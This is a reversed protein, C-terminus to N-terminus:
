WGMRDYYANVRDQNSRYLAGLADRRAQGNGFTGNITAPVLINDEGIRLGANLAENIMQANNGKSPAAASGAGTARVINAIAEAFMAAKVDDSLGSADARDSGESKSDSKAKAKPAPKKDKDSGAARGEGGTAMGAEELADMIAQNRIYDDINADIAQAGLTTGIGGMGNALAAAEAGLVANDGVARGGAGMGVGAGQAIANAIAQQRAYENMAGGVAQGGADASLGMGQGITGGYMRGLEAQSIPTGAALAKGSADNAIGAAGRGLGRRAANAALVPQGVSNMINGLAGRIASNFQANEVGRGALDGAIRAGSRAIPMVRNRNNITDRAVRGTVDAGAGAAGGISEGASRGLPAFRTAM